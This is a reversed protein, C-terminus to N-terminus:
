ILTTGRACRLTRLRGPLARVDIYLLGPFEGVRISTTDHMGLALTVVGEFDGALAYSKLVPYGLTQKPRTVTPAGSGDHAQAPRLTILLFSRGVMAIPEGSPDATVRTVYRIDYGPMPGTIGLVLRDYGCEPHAATKITTIVPAASTAAQRTVSVPAARWAGTDCSAATASPSPSAASPSAAPPSAAPSSASASPAPTAAPTSSACSSVAALVVALLAARVLSSRTATRRM